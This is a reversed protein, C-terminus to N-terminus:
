VSNFVVTYMYKKSHENEVINFVLKHNQKRGAMGVPDHKGLITRYQPM